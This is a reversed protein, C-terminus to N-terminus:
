LQAILQLMFASVSIKFPIKVVAPYAQCYNM